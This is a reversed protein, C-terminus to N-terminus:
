AQFNTCACYCNEAKTWRFTPWGLADNILLTYYVKEGVLTDYNLPLSMIFEHINAMRAASEIEDNTAIGDPAGYKFNIM